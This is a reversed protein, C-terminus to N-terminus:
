RTHCCTGVALIYALALGLAVALPFLVTDCRRTIALWVPVTLSLMDDVHRIIQHQMRRARGMSGLAFRFRLVREQLAQRDPGRFGRRVPKNGCRHM